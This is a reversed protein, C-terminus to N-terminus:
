TPCVPLTTAGSRYMATRVSMTDGQLLITKMLSYFEVITINNQCSNSRKREEKEEKEDFTYRTM